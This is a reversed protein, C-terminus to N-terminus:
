APCTWAASAAAVCDSPSVAAPRDLQLYAIESGDPSFAAAYGALTDPRASATNADLLVSRRASDGGIEYRSSRVPPAGALIRACRAGARPHPLARRDVPRYARAHFRSGPRHPDARTAPPGRSLPGGGVRVERQGLRRARAGARGARGAARAASGPGHCAITVASTAGGRSPPFITREGQRERRRRVLSCGVEAVVWRKVPAEM